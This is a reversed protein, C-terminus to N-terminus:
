IRDAIKEGPKWKEPFRVKAEFEFGDAAALLKPIRDAASPITHELDKRLAALDDLFQELGSGALSKELGLRIKRSIAPAAGGTGITMRLRGTDFVSVNVVDCFVPQDVACLLVRKQKCREWVQKVLEPMNKPCFVVFFQDNIQDPSFASPDVVTVRAGADRLRASKDLMERDTAAGVVLCERDSVKLASPFYNHKSM